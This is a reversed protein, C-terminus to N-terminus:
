HARQRPPPGSDLSRALLNVDSRIASAQEPSLEAAGFRVSNFAAAVREPIVQLEETTLIHAFFHRAAIANELATNSDSLPLGHRECIERFSEYFRIVSRAARSTRSFRRRLAAAAALLIRWPKRRILFALLSLLVFTIVGGQWSFWKQPSMVYEVFFLKAASLLGQKKVVEASNRIADVAPKILAKQRELNMNQVVAFWKDTFAGRLDTLWSLSATSAVTEERASAPTPDLTAWHGDIWAEVWTHAHKQKVEHEGTVTNVESGKFGNVIRAPVDVAQLMLACSSAFYECHGIKHNLLFDEVPDLSRDSVNQNLSYTFEGSANLFKLIRDACEAPDDSVGTETRCISEALEVLKPMEERLKPTLAEERVDRNRLRKEADGPGPSNRLWAVVDSLVWLKATQPDSPDLRPCHIEYTVPVDSRRDALTHILTQTKERQALEGRSSISVANVLPMVAFAFTGIPPDQTIRIAFPNASETLAPFRQSSDVPRDTRSAGRSWRGKVYNSLVNGRLRLEDFGMATSFQEISVPRGTNLERISFQLVRSDSQLIEGIEGLQVEETFGTRHHYASRDRETPALPSDVWIRPFAAFVVAAVTLSGAFTSVVIGHFRWGTWSEGADIQVSNRVLVPGAASRRYGEALSDAVILSDAEAASGTSIMRVRFLTFLSLTWILLLLMGILSAGFAAERTLVSAVALQLVSLASLWWFQRIGKKMMLVIWTLYVLMHAGSLLKGEIDGAFFEMATAIAAMGGLVNAAYIPLSFWDRRDTILYALVALVPTVGVPFWVGEARSLIISSLCVCMTISRLFRRELGNQRRVAQRHESLTLVSM